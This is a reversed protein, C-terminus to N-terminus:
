RSSSGPRAAVLHASSADFPAKVHRAERPRAAARLQGLVLVLELVELLLQLLELLQRGGLLGPAVHSLRPLCREGQELADFHLAADRHQLADRAVLLQELREPHGLREVLDVALRRRLHDYPPACMRM